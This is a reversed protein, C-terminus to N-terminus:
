PVLSPCTQRENQQKDKEISGKTLYRSFFFFVLEDIKDMKNLPFM